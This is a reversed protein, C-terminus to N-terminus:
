ARDCMQVTVRCYGNGREGDGQCGIYSRGALLNIVFLLCGQFREGEAPVEDPQDHRPTSRRATITRNMLARLGRSGQSKAM